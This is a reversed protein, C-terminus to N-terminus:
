QDRLKGAPSTGQRARRHGKRGSNAGVTYKLAEITGAVAGEISYNKVRDRAREGIRRLRNPDGAMQKLRDALADTDGFPFVTGTVSEEVLDPGCGVRDSVIAPLGCIMAENVVLGWTEGYDSPLVLCDAAVYARSIEMQNLFGAFTVPLRQLDAIRRAENLLVGTGVVLLHINPCSIHATALAQLLDLIRKKPELKGVFLFCVRDQAISWNARLAKRCPQLTCAESEFRPNDVFHRCTFIREPDVGCELLFQRNSSGVSLFADYWALLLRHLVSKWRPRPQMANSDGRVIRPIRLRICSWLTQLLPLSHWGTLIVADPRAEKFLSYISPTSSSFFGKLSPKRRRNTLSHWGYGELLPVDWTFPVGFGIGQQQQDPLLAYYVMVELGQENALKRFWPIQYQIPHTSVIAVKV